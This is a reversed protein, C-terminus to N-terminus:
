RSGIKDWPVFLILGAAVAAVGAVAVPMFWDRQYIPIALDKTVLIDENSAPTGTTQTPIAPTNLAQTLKVPTLVPAMASYNNGVAALNKVVQDYTSSGPKFVKGANPYGSLVEINGGQYVRFQGQGDSVDVYPPAGPIGGQAASIAGAGYNFYGYHNM